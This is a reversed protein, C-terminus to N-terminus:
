FDDDMIGTEAQPTAQAELEAAEISAFASDCDPFLQIRGGSVVAVSSVYRELYVKHACSLILMRNGALRQEFLPQWREMFDEDGLTLTGEGLYIDFEPLLVAAHAFKVTLLGPWEAVPELYHDGFDVLDHMFREAQRFDLRYLGCLFRLTDRGNLESRFQLLRGIPWSIRGCRVVKGRNPQLYGALLDMTREAAISSDAILGMRARDFAFTVDDLIRVRRNREQVSLTVDHLRIM